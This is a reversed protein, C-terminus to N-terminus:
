GVPWLPVKLTTVVDPTRAQTQTLRGKESSIIFRFEEGIYLKNEPLLKFRLKFVEGDGLVLDNDGHVVEYCYKTEPMLAEFECQEYANQSINFIELISSNLYHDETINGKINLFGYVYNNVESQIPADELEYDYIPEASANSIDVSLNIIAYGAENSSFNILLSDSYNYSVSGNWHPLIRIKDDYGDDDIDEITTWTTNSLSGVFFHFSYPDITIRNKSPHQLKAGTDHNESIFQVDFKKMQIPDSGASLRIYIEFNNMSEDTKNGHALISIVDVSNTIQKRAEQGTILARQQLIGSTSILVGAAVAAVLITAIFIILTGIGMLSKKGFRLM